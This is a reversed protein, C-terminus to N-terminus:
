KLDRWSSNELGKAVWLACALLAGVTGAIAGVAFGATFGFYQFVPGSLFSGPAFGLYLSTSYVGMVIGRTAATTTANLTRGHLLTHDDDHNIDRL